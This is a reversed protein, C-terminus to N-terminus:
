LILAEEARVKDELADYQADSMIPMGFYYAQKAKLLLASDNNM